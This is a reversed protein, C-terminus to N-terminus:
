NSLNGSGGLSTCTSITGGANGLTVNERYGTTSDSCRMGFGQNETVTNSQLLGGDGGVFIGDMGNGHVSNGKALIGTRSAAVQIGHDQNESVFNSQILGGNGVSLTIGDGGNSSVSNNTVLVASFVVIGTGENLSVRNGRVSRAGSIGSRGNQTAVSDIVLGAGEIGGSGNRSAVSNAVVSGGAASIGVISNQDATCVRVISNSAQIGTVDNSSAM